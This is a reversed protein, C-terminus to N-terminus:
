FGQFLYNTISFISLKGQKFNFLIISCYNSHFSFLKIWTYFALTDMKAPM